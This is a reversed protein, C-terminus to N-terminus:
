PQVEATAAEVLDVLRQLVKTQGRAEECLKRSMLNFQRALIHAALAHAYLLEFSPPTNAPRREHHLKRAATADEFAWKPSDPIYPMAKVELYM